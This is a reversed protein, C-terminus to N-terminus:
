SLQTLPHGDLLFFGWLAVKSEPFPPQKYLVTYASSCAM